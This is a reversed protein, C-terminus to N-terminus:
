GIAREYSLNLVGTKFTEASKLQLPYTPTDQFFQQGHRRQLLRLAVPRSVRVVGDLSIFFNAEIKGM